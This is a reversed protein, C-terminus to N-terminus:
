NYFISKLRPQVKLFIKSAIIIKLLDGPLFPLLGILITKKFSYGLLIKLWIVGSSLIILNGICLTIFISFLNIKSLSKITQGVFLSALLFGAIYGGTPGFLYLMGSGANAFIPLGVIGLLIYTSQSFLGLKAGLMAGCLLVFFTQLTLPVPSFPLPIKIFAGLITLIVFSIVGILRSATKNIIIEKKLITETM